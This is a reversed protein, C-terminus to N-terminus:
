PKGEGLGGHNEGGESENLKVDKRDRIIFCVDLFYYYLLTFYFLIFQKM